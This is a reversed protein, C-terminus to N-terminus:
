REKEFFQIRSLWVPIWVKILFLVLINLFTLFLNLDLLGYFLNKKKVKVYHLIYVYERLILETLKLSFLKKSLLSSNELLSLLLSM